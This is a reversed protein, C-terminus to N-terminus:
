HKLGDRHRRINLITRLSEAFFKHLKRKFRGRRSDRGRPLRWLLTPIRARRASPEVAGRDVLHQLVGAMWNQRELQPLGVSGSRKRFTKTTRIRNASVTIQTAWPSRATQEKNTPPMFSGPTRGNSRASVPWHRMIGKHCGQPGHIDPPLLHCGIIPALRKLLVLGPANGNSSWITWRCGTVDM